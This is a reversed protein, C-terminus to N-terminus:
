ARDSRPLQNGGTVPQRSRQVTQLVPREFQRFRALWQGILDRLLGSIEETRRSEAELRVEAQSSFDIPPLERQM